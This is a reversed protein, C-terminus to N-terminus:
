PIILDEIDWIEYSGDPLLRKINLPIKRQELEMTAIKVNDKETGVDIMAPSGQSIQMARLGILRAREYKTLINSTKKNNNM